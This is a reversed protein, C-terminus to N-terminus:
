RLGRRYGSNVLQDLLSPFDLGHAKAADPYLSTPTMGPMTNVELLWFEGSEAVIYDSRSLDSCGLSQHAQIATEALAELTEDELGEPPIVHTSKGQAYRNTFDYWEDDGVVIDIIPLAEPAQEYLDLVGVTIERGLHFPEVLVRDGYEFGHELAQRLDGGNPLLTVGLASGQNVPKVVLSEGLRQKIKPIKEDLSDNSVLFGPIVPLGVDNFLLKSVHKDMGLASAHLDSGVFPIQLSSLFGQVTGDEGHPGHMVPIAVDPQFANLEAVLSEDFEFYEATHSVQLGALVERSSIRSIEAEESKGGGIVAVNLGM